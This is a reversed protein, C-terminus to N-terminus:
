RRSPMPWEKLTGEMNIEKRQEQTIGYRQAVESKYKETLADLAEANRRIKEDAIARSDNPNPWPYKRDAEAEARDAAMILAKYIEKRKAESLEHKVEPEANRHALINTKINIEPTSAAGIKQLNAIWQGTSSKFDDESTYLWIAIHTPKGDFYKFGRTAGAEDYMKALLNRLGSNTPTGSVVAYITVQTKIETDTIKRDVVRYQLNEIPSQPKGELPINYMRYVAEVGAQMGKRTLESERCEVPIVLNDDEHPVQLGLYGLTAYRAFRYGLSYCDSTGIANQERAQNVRNKKATEEISELQRLTAGASSGQESVGSLTDQQPVKTEQRATQSCGAALLLILTVIPGLERLEMKRERLVQGKAKVWSAAVLFDRRRSFDLRLKLM